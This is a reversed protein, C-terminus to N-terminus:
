LLSRIHSGTDRRYETSDLALRTRMEQSFWQNNTFGSAAPFVWLFGTSFHERSLANFAM